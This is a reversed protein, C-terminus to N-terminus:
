ARWGSCADADVVVPVLRDLHQAEVEVLVLQAREADREGPTHAARRSRDQRAGRDALVALAVLQDVDHQALRELLADVM